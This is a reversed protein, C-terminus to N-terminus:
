KELLQAYVDDEDNLWIATLSSQAAAQWFQDDDATALTVLVRTGEPLSLPELPHIQGGRIEAMIPSNTNALDM